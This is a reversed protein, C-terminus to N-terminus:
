GHHLTLGIFIYCIGIYIISLCIEIFAYYIKSVTLEWNSLRLLVKSDSEFIPGHTFQDTYQHLRIAPIYRMFRVNNSHLAVYADWRNPVIGIKWAYWTFFDALTGFFAGTAAFFGLILCAIPTSISLFLSLIWLIVKTVVLHATFGGIAHNVITM